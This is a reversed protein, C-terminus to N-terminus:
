DARRLKVDNSLTATGATGLVVNEAVEGEEVEPACPGCTVAVGVVCYLTGLVWVDCDCYLRWTM